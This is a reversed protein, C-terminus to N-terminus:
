PVRISIEFRLEQSAGAQVTQKRSGDDAVLEAFCQQALRFRGQCVSIKTLRKRQGVLFFRDNFRNTGVREGVKGLLDIMCQLINLTNSNRTLIIYKFLVSAM